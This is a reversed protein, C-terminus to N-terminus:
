FQCGYSAVAAKAQDASIKCASELTPKTQPNQALSLWSARLQEIQSKFASQHAAPVKDSLCAEYKTLFDDCAPIGIPEAAIATSTIAFPMAFFLAFRVM